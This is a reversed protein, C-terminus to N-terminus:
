PQTVTNSILTVATQALARGNLTAGAQMAILTKSLIIGAFQSSPYLTIGSGAVEWFVNRAQAGGTLMIQFGNDVLTGAIQFIWVDNAGGSLTINGTISVNSSAANWTYLGATFTNGNLTGSGINLNPGTAAPLTAIYNYATGMDGIATTLNSPTPSAMSAAYVFGNVQSSTAYGTFDVLSFGTIATEAIPSTGINGTIASTPSNTVGSESLIAYNAATGLIVPAPGAGASAITTFTWSQNSSLANGNTDKVGTTITATYQTNATLLSTPTFTATKSGVNYVVSGTVGAVTFTSSTFTSPNM